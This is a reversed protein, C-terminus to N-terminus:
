KLSSSTGNGTPGYILLAKLQKFASSTQKICDGVISDKLVSQSWLHTPRCFSSYTTNLVISLPHTTHIALLQGKARLIHSHLDHWAWGPFRTGAKRSLSSTHVCCGQFPATDPSSSPCLASPGGQSECVLSGGFGQLGLHKLVASAARSWLHLLARRHLVAPGSASLHSELPKSPNMLM